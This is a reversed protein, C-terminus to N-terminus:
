MAMPTLADILLCMEYRRASTILINNRLVIIEYSTCTLIYKVKLNYCEATDINIM